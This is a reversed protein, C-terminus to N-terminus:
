LAKMLREYGARIERGLQELAGGVGRASEEFGAKGSFERWKAELEDWEAQAEKSGLHIQLKLEDRRRRLEEQLQSLDVM